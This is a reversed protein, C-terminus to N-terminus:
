QSAAEDAANGIGPLVSAIRFDGTRVLFFLSAVCILILAFRAWPLIWSGPNPKYFAYSYRFSLRGNFNRTSSYGGGVIVNSIAYRLDPVASDIIKQHDLWVILYNATDINIELDHPLQPDFNATLLYPDYGFANKAGILLGITGNKMEVRVGKNLPATQFLDTYRKTSYAKFQMAASFSKTPAQAAEVHQYVPTHTASDYEVLPSSELKIISLARSPLLFTAFLGILAVLFVAALIKVRNM